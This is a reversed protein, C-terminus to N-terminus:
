SISGWPRWLFEKRGTFLERRAPMCPLSGVFHDEFIQARVAFRDINPTHCPSDPDYASLANRTLSDILVLVINM